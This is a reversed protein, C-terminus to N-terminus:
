IVSVGYGEHEGSVPVAALRRIKISGPKALDPYPSTIGIQPLLVKIDLSANKAALGLPSAAL